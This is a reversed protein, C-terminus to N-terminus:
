NAFLDNFTDKKELLYGKWEDMQEEPINPLLEHAM